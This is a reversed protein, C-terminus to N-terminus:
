KNSRIRRGANASAVIRSGIFRRPDVDGFSISIRKEVSLTSANNEVSNSGLCLLKSLWDDSHLDVIPLCGESLSRFDHETGFHLFSTLNDRTKKNFCM